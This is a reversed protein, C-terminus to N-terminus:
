GSAQTAENALLEIDDPFVLTARGTDWDVLVLARGLNELGYRITGCTHRDIVGGPHHVRQIVRCRSGSFIRNIVHPGRQRFFVCTGHRLRERQKRHYAQVLFPLIHWPITAQSTGTM